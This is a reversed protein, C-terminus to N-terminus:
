FSPEEGGSLLRRLLRHQEELLARQEEMLEAQQTLLHELVGTLDRYRALLRTAESERRKRLRHTVLPPRNLRLRQLSFAGTPTLALLTGDEM